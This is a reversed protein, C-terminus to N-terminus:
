SPSQWHLHWILLRFRDGSSLRLIYRKPWKNKIWIELDGDTAYSHAELPVNPIFGAMWNQNRISAIHHSKERTMTIHWSDSSGCENRIRDFQLPSKDRTQQTASLLRTTGATRCHIHIWCSASSLSSASSLLQCHRLQEVWFSAVVLWYPLV